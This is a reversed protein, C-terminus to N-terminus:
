GQNFYQISQFIM